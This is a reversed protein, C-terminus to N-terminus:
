LETTQIIEWSNILNQLNQVTTWILNILDLLQTHMLILQHSEYSKDFAATVPTENPIRAM